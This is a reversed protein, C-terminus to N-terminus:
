VDVPEGRAAWEIAVIDFDVFAYAGVAHISRGQHRERVAPTMGALKAPSLLASASRVVRAVLGLPQVVAQTRELDIFGNHTMLALGGPALHRPLGTLFPDVWRRGDAGGSGWSPLHIGDDAREAAFHPLNAVILDYRQAACTSWLEGVRVEARDALGEAALLRRTADVAAPEVDVGGGREAGAQLLGALVVGSGLGVEFVRAPRAQRVHRRAVHLLQATYDSPAFPDSAPPM